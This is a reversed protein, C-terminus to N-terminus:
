NVDKRHHELLISIIEERHQEIGETYQRVLRLLDIRDQASWDAVIPKMSAASRRGYESARARGLETPVLISARGDDPDARRELLGGKVLSAVQRSVTSPDACVLEALDSARRPGHVALKVLLFMPSHDAEPGTLVRSKIGSFQKVMDIVAAAIEASEDLGAPEDPTRDLSNLTATM